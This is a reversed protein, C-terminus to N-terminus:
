AALRELVQAATGDLRRVARTHSAITQLETRGTDWAWEPGFVSEAEVRTFPRGTELLHSGAGGRFVWFSDWHGHARARRVHANADWWGPGPDCTVDPLVADVVLKGVLHFRARGTPEALRAIFILVDGPVTKRLSFARGARRCNDGYTPVASSFDPDLHVPRDRWRPPAIDSLPALDPDSLRRMPSAWPVREPIPLLHFTGDARLPSRAAHSSNVGVNALFAAM